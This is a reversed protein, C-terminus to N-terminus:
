LIGTILANFPQNNLWVIYCDQRNYSFIVFAVTENLTCQTLSLLRLRIVDVRM